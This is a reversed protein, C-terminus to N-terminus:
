NSIKKHVKTGDELTTVVLLLKFKKDITFSELTKNVEKLSLLVADNISFSYIDFVEISKIKINNESKVTITNKNNIVDVQLRESSFNEILDKEFVLVFRDDMITNTVKFTFDSNSIETYSNNLKDYIYIEHNNLVGQKKDISISLQSGITASTTIGLLIIKSNKFPSQVNIVLDLNDVISYFTTTNNRFTKVDEKSYFDDSANELFAFGTQSIKEEKDNLVNLWLKDGKIGVNQRAFTNNAVKTRMSNNFVLNGSYDSDPNNTVTQVFFSQCSALTGPGGVGNKTIFGLGNFPTPPGPVNADHWDKKTWVTVFM